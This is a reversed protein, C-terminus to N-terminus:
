KTPRGRGRKVPQKEATKVPKEEAVAPVEKAEEDKASELVTKNKNSLHRHMLMGM